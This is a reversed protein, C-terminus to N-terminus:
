FGRAGALGGPLGMEEGGPMGMLEPPIPPMGGAMADPPAPPDFFGEAAMDQIAKQRTQGSSIRKDIEAAARIALLPDQGGLAEFASQAFEGNREQEIRRMTQQVDRVEPDRELVDQLSAMGADKKQVAELFANYGGPRADEVRVRGKYGALATSPTYEVETTRKGYKATVTKRENPWLNLEMEMCDDYARPFATKYPAFLINTVLSRPGAQLQQIAKGSNAPGQGQNSEPNYNFKEALAILSGMVQTLNNPSDPAHRQVPISRGNLTATDVVNYEGWRLTDGLLPPGTIPAKNIRETNQIQQNMVKMLAAEIGVQGALLPLGHQKFSVVGCVGPHAPSGDKRKDGAESESLVVDTDSMAVCLWKEKSRYYAVQVMQSDDTATSDGYGWVSKYANNLRMMVDPKVDGYADYAFRRKVEALTLDYVLLTGDLPSQSWPTWRIPPYHCRPDVVDMFVIHRDHDAHVVITADYFAVQYDALIGTQVDFSPGGRMASGAHYGHAIKEVTEAKDRATDSDRKGLTDVHPLVPIESLYRRLQDYASRTTQLQIKIDKDTFLGEYQTPIHGQIAQEVENMQQIELDRTKKRANFIASIDEHSQPVDPM